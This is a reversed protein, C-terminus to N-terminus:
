TWQPPGSANAHRRSPNPQPDTPSPGGLAGVGAIALDAPGGPPATCSAAGSRLRSARRRRTSQCRVCPALTFRVAGRRPRDSSRRDCARATRDAGSRSGRPGCSRAAGGAGAGSSPRAAARRGPPGRTSDASPCPCARRGGAGPPCGITSRSPRACGRAVAARRSGPYMPGPARVARGVDIPEAVISSREGGSRRAAPRGHAAPFGRAFKFQDRGGSRSIGSRAALGAPASSTSGCRATRSNWWLAASPDGAGCPSGGEPPRSSRSSTENFTRRSVPPREYYCSSRPSRSARHRGASISTAWPFTAGAVARRSITSCSVAGTRARSCSGARRRLSSRPLCRTWSRMM